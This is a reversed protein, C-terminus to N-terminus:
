ILMYLFSMLGGFIFVTQFALPDPVFFLLTFMLILTILKGFVLSLEYFVIFDMISKKKAREYTIAELPVVIINKTVRSFMDVIFIGFASGAILRAFSVFAYAISGFRLIKQKDFSDSKKGIFLTVFLTVLMAGAVLAGVSLLDVVIIAIFIPWVVMAIIEEGYGLYGFFSIRNKKSFLYKYAEFYKPEDAVIKEKTTLLPINSLIFLIAVFTFLAGFGWFKLIVGSVLPAFVTVLAIIVKINAVEKGDQNKNSNRAFDANYAPWYFSKQLAYLIPAFLFLGPVFQINYFILYYGIFLFTSVVIGKEYGFHRSFNAGVPLIVFYIGYVLLFFFIIQHLSYGLTYLYIPEFIQIMMIAFNLILTSLYLEKIERRMNRPLFSLVVHRLARM